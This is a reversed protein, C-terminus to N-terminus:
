EKFTVLNSEYNSLLDSGSFTFEFTATDDAALNTITAQGNLPNATLDPIVDGNDDLLQVIITGSKQTAANNKVTVTLSISNLGSVTTTVSEASFDTNAYQGSFLSIKIPSAVTITLAAVTSAVAATVLLIVAWIPMTKKVNM